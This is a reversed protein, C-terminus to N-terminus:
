LRYKYSNRAKQADPYQSTRNEKELTVGKRILKSAIMTESVGKKQESM